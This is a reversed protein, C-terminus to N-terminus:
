SRAESFMAMQGKDAEKQTVGSEWATIRKRAMEAYEPKLEIGVYDRGHKAAVEAVTGSGMFIDCVVCPVTETHGCECTPRWGTTKIQLTARPTGEWGQGVTADGGAIHDRGRGSTQVEKEM